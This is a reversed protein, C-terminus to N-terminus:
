VSNTAHRVICEGFRQALQVPVANGIQRAQSQMNGEFKFEPPFTQLLAAEHVSIARDQEPHGFRGNSYSICRTTLAPAPANWHLRGYVDTFGTFDSKHCNPRLESPWDKWSGGEPTKRIRQLNLPSLKAARHQPLKPHTEGAKIPPLEKIWDAVTSFPPHQLSLGHTREPFAIPQMRSAMLLLRARRQPVGYDQARIIKEEVHYGLDKKLFQILPRFIDQGMTSRGLGPVNEVFVFEPRYRKVFPLWYDLLALREDGSSDGRRQQSFPQCPACASFLLPHQNCPRVYRDLSSVPLCRIDQELFGADPFNLQFTRGAGQDNDLGFAIEMGADQFGASTGGCGCFFDFVKISKLFNPVPRDWHEIEGTNGKTKMGAIERQALVGLYIDTNDALYQRLRSFHGSVHAVGFNGRSVAHLM